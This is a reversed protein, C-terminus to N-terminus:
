YRIDFKRYGVLQDHLEEEVREVKAWMPGERCWVRYQQIADEEGEVETEVCGDECNRVFGHLGLEGAKKKASARFVVGQVAGYIRLRLRKM